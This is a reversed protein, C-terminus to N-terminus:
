KNFSDPFVDSLLGFFIRASVVQKGSIQERTTIHCALALSKASPCQRTAVM